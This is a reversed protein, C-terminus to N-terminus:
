AGGRPTVASMVVGGRARQVYWCANEDGGDGGFATGVTTGCKELFRTWQGHVQVQVMNGRFNSADGHRALHAVAAIPTKRDACRRGRASLGENGPWDLPRQQGVCVRCPHAIPCVAPRAHEESISDGFDGLGRLLLFRWSSVLDCAGQLDLQLPM